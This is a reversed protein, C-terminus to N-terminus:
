FQLDTECDEQRQITRTQAMLEMGSLGSQRQLYPEAYRRVVVDNCGLKPFIYVYKLIFYVNMSAKVM